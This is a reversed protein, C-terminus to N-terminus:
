VRLYNVYLNGDEEELRAYEVEFPLTSHLPVNELVEGWAEWYYENDPNSLEERQEDMLLHKYMKLFISPINAGEVSPILLKREELLSSLDYGSLRWGESLTLLSNSNEYLGEVCLREGSLGHTDGSAEFTIEVDYKLLLARLEKVFEREKITEM